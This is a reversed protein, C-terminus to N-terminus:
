AENNDEKINQKASGKFRIKINTHININSDIFGTNHWNSFSNYFNPNNKYLINGFGFIDSKLKKSNKISNNVINKIRKNAKKELKKIININSLNHNCNDEIITGEGNIDISFNLNGIYNKKSSINFIKITSYDKGCKLYINMESVKNNIINTGRSDNSSLFTVLKNGKFIALNDLKLYKGKIVKVSPLTPNKGKTILDYIFDSYITSTSKSETESAIKINKSISQSPFSELPNIIKIVDIAKSNKAILFEFRKTSESNRLFFDLINTIDSAVDKSIVLVLLHEIYIKKPSILDIDNMAESITNGVGSYIVTKSDSKSSPSEEKKPNAILISVKYKDNEKDVAIATTIALNNIENYNWCGTLFLLLIFILKKM